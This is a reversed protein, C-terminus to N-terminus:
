INIEELYADQLYRKRYMMGVLMMVIPLSAM